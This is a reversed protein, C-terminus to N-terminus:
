TNLSYWQEDIQTRVKFRTSLALSPASSSTGSYRARWLNKKLEHARKKQDELWGPVMVLSVSGSSSYIRHWFVNIGVDRCAAILALTQEIVPDNNVPDAFSPYTPRMDKGVLGASGFHEVGPLYTGHGAGILNFEVTGMLYAM